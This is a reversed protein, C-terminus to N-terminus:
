KKLASGLASGLGGYKMPARFKTKSFYTKLYAIRPSTDTRPVAIYNEGAMEADWGYWGRYEHYTWSWGYSEFLSVLDKIYADGGSAWRVASFESVWIPANNKKAFQVVSSLEKELRAKDLMAGNVIGPYKYPTPYKASIKQHTYEMPYYMHMSYVVNSLRVPRMNSFSSPTTDPASQVFLIHNPDVVRVDQGLSEVYSLWTNERVLYTSGPPVPENMLEYGAVTSNNKYREAIKKWINGYSVQLAQNKWFADREDGAADTTLVVWVGNMGAYRIYDDANQLSENSVSYGGCEACKEVRIFYRVLNINYTQLPLFDSMPRKSTSVAFGVGRIGSNLFASSKLYGSDTLYDSGASAIGISFILLFVKLLSKM